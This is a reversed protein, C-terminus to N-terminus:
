RNKYYNISSVVGPSFTAASSWSNYMRATIGKAYYNYAVVPSGSAGGDVTIDVNIQWNSHSKITGSNKWMWFAGYYDERNPYGITQINTGSFDPTGDDGWYGMTGTRFMFDKNSPVIIAWDNGVTDTGGGRVINKASTETYGERNSSNVLAIATVDTRWYGNDLEYIVHRATMIVGDSICFGTGRRLGGDSARAIIVVTSKYPVNKLEEHTVWRWDNLAFTSIGGGKSVGMDDTPINMLADIDISGDSNLLREQALIENADADDLGRRYMQPKPEKPEVVYGDEFGIANLVEESKEEVFVEIQQTKPNYAEAVIAEDGESSINGKENSTEKLISMDPNSPLTDVPIENALAPVVSGFM